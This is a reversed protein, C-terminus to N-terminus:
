YIDAESADFGCSKCEIGNWEAGCFCRKIVRQIPLNKVLRHELWETYQDKNGYCIKFGTDKTFEKHLFRKDELEVKHLVKMIIDKLGNFILGYLWENAAIILLSIL